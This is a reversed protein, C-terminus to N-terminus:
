VHYMHSSHKGKRRKFSIRSCSPTEASASCGGPQSAPTCCPLFWGPSVSLFVESFARHQLNEWSLGHRHPPLYPAAGRSARQGWPAVLVSDAKWFYVLLITQAAMMSFLSSFTVWFRSFGSDAGTGASGQECGVGGVRFFGVLTNLVEWSCCSLLLTQLQFLSIFSMPSSSTHSLSTRPREQTMGDQKGPVPMSEVATNRWHLSVALLTQFSFFLSFLLSFM